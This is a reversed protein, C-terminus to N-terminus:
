EMHKLPHLLIKGKHIKVLDFTHHNEMVPSFNSKCELMVQGFLTPGELIFSTNEGIDWFDDRVGSYIFQDIVIRGDGSFTFTANDGITVKGRIELISNPGQLEIQAGDFFTFNAGDEIILKSGEEIILKDHIILSTGSNFTVNATRNNSADGIVFEGTIVNIVAEQCITLDLNSNSLPHNGAGFGMPLNTNCGFNAGLVIVSSGFYKENFDLSEVGENFIPIFVLNIEVIDDALCKIGAIALHGPESNLFGDPDYFTKTGGCMGQARPVFKEGNVYCSFHEPQYDYEPREKDEKKKCSYLSLLLASTLLYIIKKM